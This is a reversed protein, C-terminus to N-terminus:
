EGEMKKLRSYYDPMERLHAKAIREYFEKESWPMSSEKYTKEMWEKLDKYIDGHESEIKIGMELEKSDIKEEKSENLQTFKKM